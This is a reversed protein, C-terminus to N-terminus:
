PEDALADLLCAIRRLALIAAAAMRTMRIAAAPV